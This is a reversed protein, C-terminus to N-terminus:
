YEIRLFEKLEEIDNFVEYRPFRSSSEVQYTLHVIVFSGDNIYYIVDDNCENKLIAKLDKNYLFHENNLERKLEKEFFDNNSNYFWNCDDDLSNIYTVVKHVLEGNIIVMRKYGM